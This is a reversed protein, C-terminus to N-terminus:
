VGWGILMSTYGQLEHHEAQPYYLWQTNTHIHSHTLTHTLRHGTELGPGGSTGMLLSGPACEYRIDGISIFM